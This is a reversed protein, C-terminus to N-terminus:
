RATHSGPGGGACGHRLFRVPGKEGDLGARNGRRRPATSRGGPRQRISLCGAREDADQGPGGGAWNAAAAAGRRPHDEGYSAARGLELLRGELVVAHELAVTGSGDKLNTAFGKARVLIVDSARDFPVRAEGSRDTTASTGPWLGSLFVPMEKPVAVVEAGEVPKGGAAAVVRVRRRGAERIVPLADQTKWLVPPWEPGGMLLGYEAQPPGSAFRGTADTTTEGRVEPGGYTKELFVIRANAVPRGDSLRLRVSRPSPAAGALVAAALLSLGTRIVPTM